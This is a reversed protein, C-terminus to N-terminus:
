FQRVELFEVRRGCKPCMLSKNTMIRRWESYWRLYLRTPAQTRQLRSVCPVGLEELKKILSELAYKWNRRGYIWDMFVYRMDNICKLFMQWNMGHNKLHEGWKCDTWLYKAISTGQEIVVEIVERTEKLKCWNAGCYPCYAPM